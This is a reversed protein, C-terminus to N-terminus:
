MILQAGAGAAAGSGVEVGLRSRASGTRNPMTLPVGDMGFAASGGLRELLAEKSRCAHAVVLGGAATADGVRLARAIKAHERVSQSPRGPIGASTSVLLRIQGLLNDMTRVLRGNKSAVWIASHFDTNLDAYRLLDGSRVASRQEKINADLERALQTRDPQKAALEAALRDLAARLACIDRIDDLDFSPVFYGRRPLAEVLGERALVALAEKIPTPSLSLEESLPRVVLKTGSAFHGQLIAERIEDYAQKSMTDRRVTM